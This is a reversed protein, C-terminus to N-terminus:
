GQNRKLTDGILWLTPAWLGVYLARREAHGREAQDLTKARIWYTTCGLVSGMSLLQAHSPGVGMRGIMRVPSLRPDIRSRARPLAGFRIRGGPGTLRAQRLKMVPSTM